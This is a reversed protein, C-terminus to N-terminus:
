NGSEQQEVHKGTEADEPQHGARPQKPPLGTVFHRCRAVWTDLDDEDEIGPPEVYVFGKLPKGTFDMIRAHRVKLADPYQDPGIRAVLNDNIVGCCMNGHLLFGLGGFMKKESVGEDSALRTRLRQALQENYSM